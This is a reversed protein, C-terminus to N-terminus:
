KVAPEQLKEMVEEVSFSPPKQRVPFEKFTELLKGVAAQAPVLAFVRDVMWKNYFLSEDGREFPDSRLNFLKPVRLVSFPERWVGSGTSRQELFVVKWEHARLAVLQGDDNWYFFGKRPSEKEEGKFFPLMNHGDLHVKFERDGLRYGKRV